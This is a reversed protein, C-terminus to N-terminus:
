SFFHVRIVSFFLYTLEPGFSNLSVYKPSPSFFSLSVGLILILLLYVTYDQFIKLTNPVYCMFAVFADKM